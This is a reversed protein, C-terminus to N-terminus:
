NKAAGPKTAELKAALLPEARKDSVEGTLRRSQHYLDITIAM